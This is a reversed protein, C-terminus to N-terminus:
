IWCMLLWYVPGVSMRKWFERVKGENLFIDDYSFFTLYVHILSRWDATVAKREVWKMNLVSLFAGERDFLFM